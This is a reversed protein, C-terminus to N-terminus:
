KEIQKSIESQIEQVIPTTFIPKCVGLFEATKEKLMKNRTGSVHKGDQDRIRLHNNISYDWYEPDNRLMKTAAYVQDETPVYHTARGLEEDALCQLMILLTWTDYSHSEGLEGDVLRRVLKLEAPEKGIDRARGAETQSEVFAAWFTEDSRAKQSLAYIVRVPMNVPEKGPPPRHETPTM